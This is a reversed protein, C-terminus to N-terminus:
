PYNYAFIRYMCRARRLFEFKVGIAEGKPAKMARASLGVIPPRRGRTNSAQALVRQGGRMM